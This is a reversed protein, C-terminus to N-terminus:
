STIVPIDGFISKMYHDDIASYAEDYKKAIEVPSLNRLDQNHLYLMALASTKDSPFTKVDNSM